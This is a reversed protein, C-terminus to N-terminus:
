QYYEEFEKRFEAIEDKSLEIDPLRKKPDYGMKKMLKLFKLFRYDHINIGVFTNDLEKEINQLENKQEETLQENIKLAYFQKLINELNNSIVPSNDFFNLLLASVDSYKADEYLNDSLKQLTIGQKKDRQVNLIISNKPAGLLPIASHTSTIFQVKPFVSSLLNPFKRQWTPHLHLDLEDIIVIGTLESPNNIHPQSEFLRLIMDGVMAIIGKMGSALKSLPLATLKDGNEDTETYIVEDYKTVEINVVNPLLKLM